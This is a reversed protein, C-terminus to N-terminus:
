RYVHGRIVWMYPEAISIRGLLPWCYSSFLADQPPAAGSIHNDTTTIFTAIILQLSL